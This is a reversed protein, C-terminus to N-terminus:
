FKLDNMTLFRVRGKVSNLQCKAMFELIKTQQESSETFVSMETDQFSHKDNPQEM